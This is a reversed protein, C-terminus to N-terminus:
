RVLRVTECHHGTLTLEGAGLEIGIEALAPDLVSDVPATVQGLLQTRLVPLLGSVIPGAVGSVLGTQEPDVRLELHEPAFLDGVASSLLDASGFSKSTSGAAIERHSFSLTEARSSGVEVHSRAQITIGPIVIDPLLPVAITVNVEAIDAFDLNAPDILGAGAGHSGLYLAAVSTGNGPHLPTPATIFRAALDTSETPACTIEDLEATAGAIEAAIPLNIRAVDVGLGLNGLIATSLEIDTSLRVAARSLQVGDEGLAIWGSRAPPENATVQVDASLLGPVALNVPVEIDTGGSRAAVTARVVDLASIDIEAFAETATLGLASDIGGVLDSVAFSQGGAGEAMGDLASALTGPLLSQLAAVMTETPVAEDFIAAPNRPPNEMLGSLAAILAGSDLRREALLDMDGATIRANVGFSQALLDNLAEGDLHAVHSDLTFSALATRSAMATRDLTVHSAESFVRAFHLPSEDELVVRVANNGPNGAPQVSFRSEAPIAPNRLFRGHELRALTADPTGNRAIAALARSEANGQDSIASMATLDSTAQLRARDRYLSAVDVGFAVFGLLVTLVLSVIVAVSGDEDSVMRRVLDIRSM